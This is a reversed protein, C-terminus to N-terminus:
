PHSGVDHGLSESGSPSIASDTAAPEEPLYLIRSCNDCSILDAQRRIDVLVQPTLLTFCGQCNRDILPVIAKGHVHNLIRMYRKYLGSEVNKILVEREGKLKQLKSELVQIQNKIELERQAFKGKIEQLETEHRKIKALQVDLGMMKELIEDELRSVETKLGFIEKELSKYEQNTRVSMLQTEYKNRTTQKSEAEIELKKHAVQLEKLFTKAVELGKTKEDVSLKVQNLESPLVIKQDEITLIEVDKEQIELLKKIEEMM